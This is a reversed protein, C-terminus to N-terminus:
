PPSHTAFFPLVFSIAALPLSSLTSTSVDSDQHKFIEEPQFSRVLALVSAGLGGPRARTACSGLGHVSSNKERTAIWETSRERIM